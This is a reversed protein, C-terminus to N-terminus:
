APFSMAWGCGGLDASRRLRPAAFGAVGDFVSLDAATLRLSRTPGLSGIVYLLKGEVAKWRGDQRVVRYEYVCGGAAVGYIRKAIVM